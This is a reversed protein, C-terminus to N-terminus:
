SGPRLMRIVCFIGVSPRGNWACAIMSPRLRKSARVPRNPSSPLRLSFEPPLVIRPPISTLNQANMLEHCFGPTQGTKKNGTVEQNGFDRILMRFDLYGKSRFIPFATESGFFLSFVGFFPNMFEDFVTISNSCTKRQFYM